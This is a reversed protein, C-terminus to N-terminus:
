SMKSTGKGRWEGGDGNGKLIRRLLDSGPHVQRAHKRLDAYNGHFDWTEHACSRPNSNMFSRVPEVVIWCSIQDRCLPCTLKHQLKHFGSFTPGTPEDQTKRERSSGPMDQLAADSPAEAFSKQFQDFCNTHRYSTDCMYPRCGKDYSSCILLVANHPHGLCVPFRAEEWQKMNDKNNPFNSTTDIMAHAVLFKLNGLGLASCRPIVDSFNTDHSMTMTVRFTWLSQRGLELAITTWAGFVAFRPRTSSFCISHTTELLVHELEILVFSGDLSVYCSADKHGGYMQSGECLKCVYFRRGKCAECPTAVKKRQAEVIPRIASITVSTALSLAFMGGLIPAGVKVIVRILPWSGM